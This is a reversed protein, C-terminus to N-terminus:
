VLYPPGRLTVTESLILSFSVRIVNEIKFVSVQVVPLHVVDALQTAPLEDLLRDCHIHQHSFSSTTSHFDVTDEHHTFAHIFVDPTIASIFLSLLFLSIIRKIKVKM